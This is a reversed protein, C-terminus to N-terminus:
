FLPEGGRKGVFGRTQRVRHPSPPSPYHIPCPGEEATRRQTCLVQPEPVFM